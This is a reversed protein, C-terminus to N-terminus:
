IKRYLTYTLMVMVLLLCAAVANHAVAVTLPLSYVINSVGLAVQVVLVTAMLVSLSKIANSSAKSYLSFALWALYLFTVVAGIRHVIHMTMREGYDHAGFEYNQAEPISFAGSFDLRSTWDGQCLPFETCALAAYNASTWGGLAIQCVM